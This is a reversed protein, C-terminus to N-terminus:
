LFFVSVYIGNQTFISPVQSGLHCKGHLVEALDRLVPVLNLSSASVTDGYCCVMAPSASRLKELPCSIRLSAFDLVGQKYGSGGYAYHSSRFFLVSYECFSFM